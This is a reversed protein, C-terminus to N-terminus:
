ISLIYVLKTYTGIQKQFRAHGRWAEPDTSPLISSPSRKQYTCNRPFSARALAYLLSTGLLSMCYFYSCSPLFVLLSFLLIPSSRSPLLVLCLTSPSESCPGCHFSFIMSIRKCADSDLSRDLGHNPACKPLQAVKAIVICLCGTSNGGRSAHKMKKGQYLVISRKRCSCHSACSSFVSYSKSPTKIELIRLVM